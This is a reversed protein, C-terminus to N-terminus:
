LKNMEIKGLEILREYNRQTFKKLFTQIRPHDLPTAPASIRDDFVDKCEPLENRIQDTINFKELDNRIDRMQSCHRQYMFVGALLHWFTFEPWLTQTFYIISASTQLSVFIFKTVFFYIHDTSFLYMHCYVRSFFIFMRALKEM